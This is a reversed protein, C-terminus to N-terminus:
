DKDHMEKQIAGAIKLQEKMLELNKLGIERAKMANEAAKILLTFLSLLSWFLLTAMLAAADLIMLAVTTRTLPASGFAERLFLGLLACITVWTLGHFLVKALGNKATVADPSFRITLSVIANLVLTVAPISIALILQFNSM